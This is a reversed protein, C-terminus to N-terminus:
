WDSTFWVEMIDTECEIMKDSGYKEANRKDKIIMSILLFVRNRIKMGMFFPVELEEVMQNFEFLASHVAKKRSARDTALLSKEVINQAEYNFLLVADCM